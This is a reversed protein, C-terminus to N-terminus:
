RLQVQVFSQEGSHVFASDDFSPMRGQTPRGSAGSPESPAGWQNRDLQKNGNVDHFVLIMYTDSAVEPFRLEITGPADVKRGVTKGCRM